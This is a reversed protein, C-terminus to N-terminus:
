WCVDAKRGPLLYSTVISVMRRCAVVEFM